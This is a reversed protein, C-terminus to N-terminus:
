GVAGCGRGPSGGIARCLAVVAISRFACLLALWSRCGFLRRAELGGGCPDGGGPTCHFTKRVFGRGRLLLAVRNALRLGQGTLLLRLCDIALKLRPSCAEFGLVFASAAALNGPNLCTRSTQCCGWPHMTPNYASGSARGRGSAKVELVALLQGSVLAM